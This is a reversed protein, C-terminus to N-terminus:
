VCFGSANASEVMVAGSEKRFRRQVFRLWPYGLHALFGHSKSFAFIHYWVSDDERNWGILFLEEGSGAHAPMTGYAYGYKCLPGSVDDIVYVIRCANTWWLGFSKGLVAVMGGVAIPTSLPRV